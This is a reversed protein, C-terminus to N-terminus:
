IEKELEIKGKTDRDTFYNGSLKNNDLHKLKLIATGIHSDSNISTNLYTYYLILRGSEPNRKPQVLLTQSESEDTVLEMSLTFFNQKIYMTGETTGKKENWTWNIKVNWTGNLNPFVWNNLQPILKWLYKWGWLFSIFVITELLVSFKFVLSTNINNETTSFILALFLAYVIAIITIVKQLPFLSIM